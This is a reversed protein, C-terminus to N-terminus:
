VNVDLVTLEEDFTVTLEDGGEEVSIEVRLPETSRVTQRSTLLEGYVDLTLGGDADFGHDHFFAIVEPHTLATVWPARAM